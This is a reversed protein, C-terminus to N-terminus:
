PTGLAGEVTFARITRNRGIRMFPVTIPLLVKPLPLARKRPYIIDFDRTLPKSASAARHEAVVVVAAFPM